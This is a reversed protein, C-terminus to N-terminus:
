SFQVGVRIAIDVDFYTFPTAGLAGSVSNMVYAGFSTTGTLNGSISVFPNYGDVARLVPAAVTPNIGIWYLVNASLAQSVTWAKVGTSDSALTGYDATATTPDGQADAALLMARLLGGAGAATAIEVSIETLTRAVLMPLPMLYLRNITPTFNSGARGRPIATRRSAKPNLADPLTASGGGAPVAWKLGTATSSDATLVTDNAGVGLRAPTSAATAAAIDGKMTFLSKPVLLGAETQVYATTALQTTNTGQLPTPAAPVGTFTPGALNAKLAGLATVFATTALQTTNTGPTATPAAPIGTFTPSALPAKLNDATTVFATTALATSSNGASQTVGTTGTPLSPTGTFAPSALPAKTALDTVLNTVDAEAHTHGTASAGIAAPTPLAQTGHTHDSRSWTGAAGASSAQGYGTETVVAGGPAPDAALAASLAASASGAPDYTGTHLHGTPSAGVSAATPATPSGHTHDDRAYKTGTGVVPSLGFSTESTVTTAPIGGGGGGGSHSDVYDKTAAQLGSVPDGPLVLPGTMTDGVVDVKSPDGGTYGVASM